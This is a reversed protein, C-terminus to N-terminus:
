QRAAVAGDRREARQGNVNLSKLVHFDIVKWPSASSFLFGLCDNLLLGCVCRQKLGEEWGM